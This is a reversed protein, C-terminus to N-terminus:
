SLNASTHVSITDEDDNLETLLSEIKERQESTLNVPHTAVKIIESSVIKAGLEDFKQTIPVLETPSTYVEIGDEANKVDEAGSDIAALVLADRNGTECELLIQGLTLFQWSVSGQSGLNGNHKSLIKKINGLVRNTNDSATEILFATGFPGYAEYIGETIQLTDTGFAKKAAREINENPMGEAKAKEIETRLQFNLNPDPSDGAKAAISIKKSLKSFLVGKKADKAGKSRKIQAWKSHGSM